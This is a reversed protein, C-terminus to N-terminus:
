SILNMLQLQKLGGFYYAFVIHFVRLDVKLSLLKPLLESFFTAAVLLHQWLNWRSLYAIYASIESLLKNQNVYQNLMTM